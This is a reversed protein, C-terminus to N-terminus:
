VRRLCRQIRPSQCSSATASPAPDGPGVPRLGIPQRQERAPLDEVVQAAARDLDRLERERTAPHVTSGPEGSRQVAARGPRRDRRRPDDRQQERDDSRREVLRPAGVVRRHAAVRDGAGLLERQREGEQRVLGPDRGVRDDPREPPEQHRLRSRSSHCVAECASRAADSPADSTQRAIHGPRTGDATPTQTTTATAQAAVLPRSRWDPREASAPEAARAARPRTAWPEGVREARRRHPPLLAERRRQPARRQAVRQQVPAEEVAEDGGLGVPERRVVELVIGLGTTAIRVDGVLMPRCSSAM